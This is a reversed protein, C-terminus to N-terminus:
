TKYFGRGLARPARGRRASLAYAILTLVYPLM